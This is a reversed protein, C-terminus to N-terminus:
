NSLAYPRKGEALLTNINKLLEPLEEMTAITFNAGYNLFAQETKRIRRYKM